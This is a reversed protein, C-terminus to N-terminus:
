AEKPKKRARLKAPRGQENYEVEFEDATDRATLAEELRRIRENGLFSAAMQERTIRENSERDARKEGLAAHDIALQMLKYRRDFEAAQQEAPVLYLGKTAVEMAKVESAQKIEAAEARLKETKAVTEAIEAERKAIELRASVEKVQQLLPDNQAAQVAQAEAAAREDASAIMQMVQERNPISTNAVVGALVARHEPTGPQLGSLLQTMQQTEYERQMIGMTSAARLKFPVAPYREKNFQMNRWLIKEVAPMLFEDLFHVLTRKYRKIIPAMAMSMAGSRADGAGAALAAGDVSGTASQVMAKLDQANQWHNPDLQGFKFPEMVESPKGNTLVSGGPQIKFKFGRPLRNADMGMMPATILALSDLRARVETDLVKQPNVGKECIGRGILRGPVIDWPFHVVPRDKQSFPNPVAKAVAHDNIIVVFAEVFEDDDPDIYEDDGDLLEPSREKPNLLSKPVRGYYRVQKANFEDFESAQQLKDGRLGDADAPSGEFLDVDKRFTGDSQAELILHKSVKETIACGLGEELSDANPDFAFNRPNIARLRACTRKTTASVVEGAPGYSPQRLYVDKIVIEGFGSGFVAGYLIAKVTEAAFDTHALDEKLRARVKDLTVSPDEAEVPSFLQPAGPQPAIPAMGAAGAGPALGPFAGSVAQAAPKQELGADEPSSLDFYDAGRGFVAEELEAAANEVAESLAPNVITSRESARVRENADFIGRWLREYTDWKEAYNSDRWTTWADVRAKVWEALPAFKDDPRAADPLEGDSVIQAGTAQVAQPPTKAM